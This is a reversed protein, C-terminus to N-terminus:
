KLFARLAIKLLENPQLGKQESQVRLKNRLSVPFRAHFDVIDESPAAFPLDDISEMPVTIRKRM